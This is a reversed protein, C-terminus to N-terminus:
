KSAKRLIVTGFRIPSGEEVVITPEIVQHIILSDVSSFDEANLATVPLGLDYSSGARLPSFAFGADNLLEELRTRFFRARTQFRQEQDLPLMSIARDFTALFRWSEVVADILIRDASGAITVKEQTRKV